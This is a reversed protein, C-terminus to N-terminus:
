VRSLEAWRGGLSPPNISLKEDLILEYESRTSSSLKLRAESERQADPKRLVKVLDLLPGLLSHSFESLSKKEQQDPRAPQRLGAWSYTIGVGEGKAFGELFPEAFREPMTVLLDDGGLYDMSLGFPKGEGVKLDDMAKRVRRLGGEIRRNVDQAIALGARPRDILTHSALSAGVGDGDLKIIVLSEDKLDLAALLDGHHVFAPISLDDLLDCIGNLYLQRATSGALSWVWSLWGQPEPSGKQYRHWPPVEDTIVFDGRVKEASEPVGAPAAEMPPEWECLNGSDRAARERAELNAEELPEEPFCLSLLNTKRISLFELAPLCTLPDCWDPLSLLRPALRPFAKLAPANTDRSWLRRLWNGVNDRVAVASIDWQTVLTCVADADVILVGVRTEVCWDRVSALVQACWSSAGRRLYQPVARDIYAQVHKTKIRLLGVCKEEIADILKKPVATSAATRPGDVIPRLVAEGHQVVLAMVAAQCALFRVKSGWPEDGLRNSEGSTAQQNLGLAALIRDRFPDTKDKRESRDEEPLTAHLMAICFQICQRWPNGEPSAAASPPWGDVGPEAAISAVFGVLWPGFRMPHNPLEPRFELVGKRPLSQIFRAHLDTALSLMERADRDLPFDRPRQGGRICAHGLLVDRFIEWRQREDLHWIPAPAAAQRLVSLLRRLLDSTASTMAPM